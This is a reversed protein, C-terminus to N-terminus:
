EAALAVVPDMMAAKRAPLYGFIVSTLFACSFAIVAPATSFLVPVDFLRIILGVCFGALLGIGGGVTCVVAAETNFQLLIDRARAGTAMRIGIERTRETVSVLMINMVGIGGVLLSIAAVVALLITLTDQTDSVTDLLSAMDRIMFDETRHRSILLDRLADETSQITDVSAVRVTIGNLYNKGFLRILGTSLPIFSNDDQDGGWGMAGKEGLVGIVEFPINKVLVYNGIPDSGDPFLNKVVTKGLVIVPAFSTYDRDSFFTGSSIPWDRVYPMKSNVGTVTTQYDLNGVRLTFRGGREPVAADINPLTLVADLDAPTMTIIDGGGRIGPAGPRILILNTGMSSIQDIVRKKSGDGVASMTVVAAVGIIIGLLTLVTRFMNAHLSRWAMKASEAFEPLMSGNIPKNTIAQADTEALIKDEIIQGDHIRIIRKAHSAVRDDHTILILTRGQQHLEMLLALVDDGSKSDLAGTPEDALIIPPDNMLARAIAVRQQQGGSLESPRNHERGKLGLQALLKRAYDMREQKRKGAYIAPIEVNEEATATALLNYRQFIFGFTDRRLEALQDSNLQSVDKGNIQYRGATHRDLCGIVNMLTSKGSGSPGMIAVFEGPYISLSINELARVKTEGASFHRNVNHLELLPKIPQSM